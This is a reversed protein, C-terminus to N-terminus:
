RAAWRELDRLLDQGPNVKWDQGFEVRCIIGDPFSIDLQFVTDGKHQSLLAKLERIATDDLQRRM